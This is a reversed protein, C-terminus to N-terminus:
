PQEYFQVHQISTRTKEHHHQVQLIQVCMCSVLRNAHRMGICFPHDVNSNTDVHEYMYVAGEEGTEGDGEEGTERVDIYRSVYLLLLILM